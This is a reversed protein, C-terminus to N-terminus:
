ATVILFLKIVTAFGFAMYITSIYKEAGKCLALRKCRFVLLLPLLLPLFYRGQVGYIIKSGLPTWALFMSLMILAASAILCLWAWVKQGASLVEDEDKYRVCGCLVLLMQPVWLYVPVDVNLWGLLGGFLNKVYFYAFTIMTNIFIKCSEIPNTLIWKINYPPEDTWGSSQSQSISTVSSFQLAMLILLALVVILLKLLTSKKKSLNFKDAPIIFVMLVLPFYVLKSPALLMAFVTLVIIDKITASTGKYKIYMVQAIFVFAFGLTISDYSLSASLHLVIPLASIMPLITKGVPIKKVAYVLLATFGALNMIRGLFITTLAGLNLVRAVAIGFASLVYSFPANGAFSCAYWVKNTNEAGFTAQQYTNKIYEGDVNPLLTEFLRLDCERMQMADSRNGSFDLLIYNSLRYASLYHAQEDPVTIPPFLFLYFVALVSASIILATTDNVKKTRLMWVLVCFACVLFAAAICFSLLFESERKFLVLANGCAYIFLLVCIAISFLTTKKTGLGEFYKRM